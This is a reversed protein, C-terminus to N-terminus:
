FYIIASAMMLHQKVDVDISGLGITAVDATLNRGNRYQYAFDLAMRGNFVYGAGFSAGYYEDLHGSAPEPDYFLGFRVPIVDKRKIFLYEMGLRVQTTDKLRTKRVTPCKTTNESGKSICDNTLPNRINEDDDRIVFHSWETRYVDLAITLSDSYRYALGLGYSAPMKFVFNESLDLITPPFDLFPPQTYKYYYSRNAEVDANFPTKYVGGLTWQGNISWLFGFHANIGKFSVEDKTVTNIELYTSGNDEIYDNRQYTKWGNSGALDNWFNLTAGLALQPTVQVAVAPSLTYLFGNQRFEVDETAVDGFGVDRVFDFDIEKNMEYLRQYNVSVTVNRNLMVFPYVVSAYNLGDADMTNEGSVGLIDNRDASNILGYGQERHFYSYVFSIEPKELQILGAPNWSAATADDAVGIFAGGMGTARAGSGVPNLSSAIEVQQAHVQSLILLLVSIVLAANWGFKIFHNM